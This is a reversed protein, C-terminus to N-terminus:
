RHSMRTATLGSSTPTCIDSMLWMMPTQAVVYTVFNPSTMMSGARNSVAAGTNILALTGRNVVPHNNNIFPSAENEDNDVFQTTQKNLTERLLEPKTKSKSIRNCFSVKRSVFGNRDGKTVVSANTHRPSTVDDTSNKAAGVSQNNSTDSVKGSDAHKVQSRVSHPLPDEEDYPETCPGLSREGTCPTICPSLQGNRTASAVTTQPNTQNNKTQPPV